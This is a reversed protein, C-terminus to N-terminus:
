FRAEPYKNLDCMRNWAIKADNDKKFVNKLQAAHDARFKQIASIRTSKDLNGIAEIFRYMNRKQLGVNSTEFWTRRAAAGYYGEKLNAILSENIESPGKNFVIDVIASQISKPLKDLALGRNRLKNKSVKVAVMIDNALIQYAQKETISMNETVKPEGSLSTHGFGITLHGNSHNRDGVGDYEAKCLPWKNNGEIGVLIERIYDESLGTYEAVSELDHVKSIDINGGTFKSIVDEVNKDPKTVNEKTEVSETEGSKKAKLRIEQGANIKDPKLGKNLKLIESLTLGYQQAISSLTEGSKVKHIEPIDKAATPTETKKVETQQQSANSNQLAKDKTNKSFDIRLVDNEGWKVTVVGNKHDVALDKVGWDKWKEIFSKDIKLIDKKSLGKDTKDLGAIEELVKAKKESFDAVEPSKDSKAGEEVFISNYAEVKVHADPKNNNRPDYNTITCDGDINMEKSTSSSNNKGYLGTYRLIKEFSM